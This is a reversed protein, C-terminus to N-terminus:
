GELDKDCSLCKFPTKKIAGDQHSAREEAVVIIIQKIKEELFNLGKKVEVKDAKERM